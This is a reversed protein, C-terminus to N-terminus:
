NRKVIVQKWTHRCSSENVGTNPNHYWGGRLSWVNRGQQNSLNNIEDRTFLKNMKMLKDCFPRTQGGPVLAPVGEAIAYRYMVEYQETKAPEERLINQAEPSVEYARVKEDAVNEKYPSILEKELLRNLAKDVLSPNVKAAKALEAKDMYPNKTLLDLVTRDISKIKAEAFEFDLYDAEFKELEFPDSTPIDRESVVSFLSADVGFSEFMSIDAQEHKHASFTSKTLSEIALKERVYEGLAVDGIVRAIAEDSPMWEVSKTRKLRFKIGIGIDSALENIIKEKRKQAPVVYRNYFSEEMTILENRQGLAGETTSGLLLKPFEHTVCINEKSQEAIEKYLDAQDSVMADTVEIGTEKSRQFSIVLRDGEEGSFNKKIQDAIERQKPEDPVEGYINVVKAPSFSKSINSHQFDGYKCSSEIWTCAGHYIPIGYAYQDPHYRKSYYVQTGTRDKPDYAKYVKWDEEEEPKKNEVPKGNKIKYWGRTYYFETQKPNTRFNAADGHNIVINRRNKTWTILLIEWGLIQYDLETKIAVEDLDTDSFPQSLLKEAQARQGVTVVGKKEYTWGGGAIYNVKANIIASHFTSRKYLDVLYYTYDNKEGCSVWPKNKVELFKPIKRNNFQLSHINLESM